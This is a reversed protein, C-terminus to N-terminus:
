CRQSLTYVQICGNRRSPFTSQRRSCHSSCFTMGVALWHCHVKVLSSINSWPVPSKSPYCPLSHSLASPSSSSAADRASSPDIYIRSIQHCLLNSRSVLLTPLYSPASLSSASSFSSAYCASLPDLCFASTQHCLIVSRSFQITYKM